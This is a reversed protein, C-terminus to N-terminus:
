RIKPWNNDAKTLLEAENANWPELSNFTSGNFPGNFFLYLKGDLVKFTEPDVPFKSSKEAVGWACYGGYQPLYAEPNKRFAAKNEKSSFHYTAGKHVVSVAAKGKTAKGSFYAVVDYGGVALNNEDVPAVQALSIQTILLAVVHMTIKKM